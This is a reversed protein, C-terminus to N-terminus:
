GLIVLKRIHEDLLELREITNDRLLFELYRELFFLRRITPVSLVDDDWPPSLERITPVWLV